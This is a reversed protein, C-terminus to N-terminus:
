YLVQSKALYHLNCFEPSPKAVIIDNEDFTVAVTASPNKAILETMIKVYKRAQSLKQFTYLGCTSPIHTVTYMSGSFMENEFYQTCEPHIAYDGLVLAPICFVKHHGDSKEQRSQTLIAIVDRKFSAKSSM